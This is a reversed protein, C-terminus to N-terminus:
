VDMGYKARLLPRVEDFSRVPAPDPIHPGLHKEMWAMGYWRGFKYGCGEFTGVMRYGLHAHFAISANTLHEDEHAATAIAANMNLVGAERLALELADHLLRGLGMGRREMAIYISTEVGWAYAARTRFPSAYAYGLINGDQHAVLYPHRTLTNRIRQTFDAVSPVDYEFTIATDRVYPAYIALLAEADAETAARIAATPHHM